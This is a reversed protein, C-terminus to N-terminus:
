KYLEQALMHKKQAMRAVEHQICKTIVWHATHCLWFTNLNSCLLFLKITFMQIPFLSSFNVGCAKAEYVLRIVDQKNSSAIVFRIFIGKTGLATLCYHTCPKTHIHSHTYTDFHFCGMCTSNLELIDFANRKITTFANSFRTHRFTIINLQANKRWHKRTKMLSAGWSNICEGDGNYHFCAGFQLFKRWKPMPEHNMNMRISEICKMQVFIAHTLVSGLSHLVILNEKDQDNSLNMSWLDKQVFSFTFIIPTNFKMAFVNWM